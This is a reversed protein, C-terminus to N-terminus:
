STDNYKTNKYASTRDAHWDYMYTCRIANHAGCYPHEQWKSTRAVIQTVNPQTTAMHTSKCLTNMRAHTHKQKHIANRVAHMVVCRVLIHAVHAVHFRM